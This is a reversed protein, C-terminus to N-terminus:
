DLVCCCKLIWSIITKLFAFYNGAPVFFFFMNWNSIMKSGKLFPSHIRSSFSIVSNEFATTYNLLIHPITPHPISTHPITRPTILNDPKHNHTHKKQQTNNHTCHNNTHTHKKPQTHNHTSHKQTSNLHKVCLWEVYLWEVCM